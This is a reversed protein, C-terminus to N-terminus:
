RTKYTARVSTTLLEDKIVDKNQLDSEAQRNRTNQVAALALNYKPHNKNKVEEWFLPCDM